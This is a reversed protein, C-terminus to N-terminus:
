TRKFSPYNNKKGQSAASPLLLNNQFYTKLHSFYSTNGVGTGKLLALLKHNKSYLSHM